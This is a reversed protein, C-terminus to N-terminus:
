DINESYDMAARKADESTKITYEGKGNFQNPIPIEQNNTKCYLILKGNKEDYNNCRWFKKTTRDM